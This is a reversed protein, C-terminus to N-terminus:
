HVSITTEMLVIANKGLVRRPKYCYTSFASDSYGLEVCDTSSHTVNISIIIGDIKKQSMRISERAKTDEIIKKDYENAHHGRDGLIIWLQLIVISSLFILGINRNKLLRVIFNRSM